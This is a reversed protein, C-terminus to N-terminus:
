ALLIFLNNAVVVVLFALIGTYAVTLLKYSYKFSKAAQNTTKMITKNALIYTFVILLTASIKVLLFAGINTSVIGAMFPNLEKAGSYVVGIVTTVCDILGMLIILSSLLAETKLM